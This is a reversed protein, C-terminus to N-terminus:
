KKSIILDEVKELIFHGLFIHCEQIRATNNSNVILKIDCNKGAKGGNNGLFGITFINNKKAEKLVKLINESNGSTSICILVDNKKALAQFPRLFIDDFSYDNGCATLTSTDQALTLAPIPSRNIHPRLRIIFEAALHQADAASGGNGCFMIKGGKKLKKQINKIADIVDKSMKIIDRHVNINEELQNQLDIKIETIAQM